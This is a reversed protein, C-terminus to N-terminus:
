EITGDGCNVAECGLNALGGLAVMLGAALFSKWNAHKM